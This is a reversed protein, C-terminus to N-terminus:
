FKTRATIGYTRPDGLVGTVLGGSGATVSSSLSAFYNKNFLNKAWLSVDFRGDSARLGLRANVLGYGAVQTWASNQLAANFTSRHFWDAHAYLELDHGDYEGVPLNGDAGLSYAFKSVGPLQKGSLDQTASVNAYEFAAPANTYSVYTADTYAFNGYLGLRDSVQWSVDSEIGRSRVKPINAIYQRAPVTSVDYIQNQYNAIDTWFGAANLTLKRNLFQSKFGVEYADVKEPAVVPNVGAPLVTLNLGGSKNGRSYSGYLLVDPTIKWGLSALGSLNNNTFSPNYPATGQAILPFFASRVATAISVQIPSLGTTSPVNTWGEYFTGSKDEHTFRLGTTLSLQPTIKLDTQGFAALSKTIPDSYSDERFGNLAGAGIADLTAASLGTQGFKGAVAAVTPRYWAPADAGYAYTGYGRVTQWFYYGGLVWSLRTHGSSALRLEQSFQRQRNVQQAITTVPLATSDGDNAPDWDWWRYATISTLTAFDLKWDVNSQVGYGAMNAQYHSDAEGQRAFANLTPFTYTPFRAATTAFNNAILTGDAYTAHFGVLIPLNYKQEQRSYDAIVRVSLNNTPTYLLQGRVSVNDYNQADTQQTTNYLFGDRKSIAGSVRVALKDDIIPGTISARAQFFNYNGYSAEATVGPTFSPKQSTVNIVGATTNKGFLTGQPGRLVEVKELDVLDFQSLGVRGYYVDDIYFGVGNELGDNALAITSGLGRININTNRPNTSLVQLSPVQQQVQNLTFDGRRELAGASVVSLAVPVDQIKEERRRSGTVTIEELGADSAVADAAAAAPAPAAAPAAALAVDPAVSLALVVLSASSLLLRQFIMNFGWPILM